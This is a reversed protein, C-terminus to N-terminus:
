LLPVILGSNNGGDYQEITKALRSTEIESPFPQLGTAIVKSVPIAFRDRTLNIAYINIGREKTRQLLDQFSFEQLASHDPAVRWDNPAGKPQIPWADADITLGRKLHALDHANLAADGRQRRKLAIIQHSLEMQCMEVIAARIAAAITLGAALGCAFGGGDCALSVSAVCPIGLDTTIDLLWSHRTASGARAHRLLAGAEAAASTELSIPRPPRGGVWWLAAADREILELVAAITAAQDTPGGACGAGVDVLPAGGREPEPRRLCLDAPLRVQGASSLCRGMVWDIEPEAAGAAGAGGALMALIESRTDRDLGHAVDMPHGRCVIDAETAIQSLYEAGEGVCREFAENLSLGSGALSVTEGLGDEGGALDSGAEGGLFVLNPADPPSIRFLRPLQAALRLLAQRNGPEAEDDAAATCGAEYGLARLLETADAGLASRGAAEGDLVTAAKRCVEPALYGDVRGSM